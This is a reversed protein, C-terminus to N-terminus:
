SDMRSKYAAIARQTDLATLAGNMKGLGSKQLGKSDALSRLKMSDIAQKTSLRAPKAKIAALNQQNSNISDTNAKAKLDAEDVIEGKDGNNQLEGPKAPAKPAAMDAETLMRDFM